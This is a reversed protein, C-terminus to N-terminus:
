QGSPLSDSTSEVAKPEPEDACACGVHTACLFCLGSRGLHPEYLEGCADCRELEREHGM